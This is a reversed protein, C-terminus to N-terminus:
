RFRNILWSQALKVNKEASFRKLIYERSAQGMQTRLKDDSLLKYLADALRGPSHEPILIGAIGDPVYEPIAGSYTSVVPTGCAM